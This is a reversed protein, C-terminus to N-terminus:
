WFSEDPLTAPAHDNNGWLWLRFNLNSDPMVMQEGMKTLIIPGVITVGAFLSGAIDANKLIGQITEKATVCAAWSTGGDINHAVFNVKIRFIGGVPV